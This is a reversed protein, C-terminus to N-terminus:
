RAIADKPEVEKGEKRKSYAPSTQLGFTMSPQARKKVYISGKKNVHEFLQTFKGISESQGM